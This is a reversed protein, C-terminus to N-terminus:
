EKKLVFEIRRNYARGAETDNAKLPHQDGFGHTEIRSAQVGKSQLYASIAKARELSLQMNEGPAGVNDTHGQVDFKLTGCRKAIDAITNLAPESSKSIVASGSNFQIADTQSFVTLRTECAETTFAAAAQDAPRQPGSQGGTRFVLAFGIFTGAAIPTGNIAESLRAINPTLGFGEASVAIPRVSTVSVATEDLRTIWVDAEFENLRGHMGVSIKLPFRIRASTSLPKLKEKDLKASIEAAPFKFVEFLQFRLRTDRLDHNTSISALDIRVVANGTSSISGEFEM